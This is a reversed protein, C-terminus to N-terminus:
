KVSVKPLDAMQGWQHWSADYIKWDSKGLRSLQFAIIAATVGSGCTAIVPRSLDVGAKEFTERAEDPTRFRFKGEQEILWLWSVNVAGPMHGGAVGPYGSDMEGTFRAPTRADLIAHDQGAVAQRMQELDVVQDKPATAIFIEPARAKAPGSALARGEAIWRKLGGNLIAVRDHGFLKFMWWVRASVYSSDYIVVQTENSIGLAGLVAGFAGSNPLMNVHPSALDSIADLDLHQASPIHALEFESKGSKGAEPVFWSVDLLVVEDLNAELWDPEVLYPDIM